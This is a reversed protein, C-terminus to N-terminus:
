SRSERSLWARFDPDLYADIPLDDMLLAADVEQLDNIHTLTAWYDGAVFVVLLALAMITQRLAGTRAYRPRLLAARDALASWSRPPRQQTLARERASRLRAAVAADVERTAACLTGSVRRAFDVENM